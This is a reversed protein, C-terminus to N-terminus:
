DVPFGKKTNARVVSQSGFRLNKVCVANEVFEGRCDPCLYLQRVPDFLLSCECNPCEVDTAECLSEEFLEYAVYDEVFDDM